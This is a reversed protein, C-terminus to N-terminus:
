DECRSRPDRGSDKWSRDFDFEFAVTEPGQRAVDVAHEMRWFSLPLAVINWLVEHQVFHHRFTNRLPTCSKCSTSPMM